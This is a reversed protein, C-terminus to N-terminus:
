RSHYRALAIARRLHSPSGCRVGLSINCGDEVGNWLDECENKECVVSWFSEEREEM